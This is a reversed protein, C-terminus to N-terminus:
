LSLGTSCNSQAGFVIVANTFHYGPACYETKNKDNERQIARRLRKGLGRAFLTLPLLPDVAGDDNGVACRCCGRRRTARSCGRDCRGPRRARLAWGVVLSPVFFIPSPLKLFGTIIRLLRFISNLKQIQL